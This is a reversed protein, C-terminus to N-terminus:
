TKNSVNSLQVEIIVSYFEAIINSSLIINSLEMFQMEFLSLHRYNITECKDLAHQSINTKIQM